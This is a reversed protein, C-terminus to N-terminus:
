NKHLESGGTMNINGVANGKLFVDCGGSAEINIKENVTVTADCSGSLELDGNAAVLNQGNFDCGGSSQLNLRATSGSVIFEVGGSLEVTMEEAAVPAMEVKCGGSANMNIKKASTKLKVDVGGSQSGELSNANLELNMSVGGSLSYEFVDSSIPTEATVDVGGAADLEKLQKVSVYATINNFKRFSKDHYIKLKGDVVETKIHELLNEDGKLILGESDGQKLVLDIGGSISISHYGSVNRNESKTNGNGSIGQACSVFTSSLFLLAIFLIQTTKM